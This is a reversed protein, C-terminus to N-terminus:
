KKKRKAKKNKIGPKTLSASRSESAAAESTNNDDGEQM